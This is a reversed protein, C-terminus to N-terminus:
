HLDFSCGDLPVSMGMAVTVSGDGCYLLGLLLVFGSM